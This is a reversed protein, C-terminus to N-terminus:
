KKIVTIKRTRFDGNVTRIYIMHVGSIWGETSISVTENTSHVIKHYVIQGMVDLAFIELAANDNNTLSITFYDAVPNPFIKISGSGPVHNSLSACELTDICADKNIKLLWASSKAAPSYDDISGCAIVSGSPLIVSSSIYHATYADHYYILTDFRYWISDGSNSFKCNAGSLTNPAQPNKMFGSVVWNGDPSINLCTFQNDASNSSGFEKEWVLDFNSDRVIVKPQRTWSNQQMHLDARTSLYIWNNEPTKQLAGAGGEELSVPSEWRWIEHGTSDIALIVTQSNLNSIPTNFPPVSSIGLVYSNSNDLYISNFYWDRFPAGFLKEWIKDGNSNLKAIFTYLSNDNKLKTGFIIFGDDVEIMKEYLDVVSGLDPYEKYNVKNGNNDVFLVFGNARSLVMGVMAFGSGNSLKIISGGLRTVYDDGQSDFFSNFSLVNGNTDIKAFLMGQRNPISDHFVVGFTNLVGNDLVLGTFSAAPSNFDYIKSFGPQGWSSTCAIISILYFIGKM